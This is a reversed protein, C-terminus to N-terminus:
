EALTVPNKETPTNQREVLKGDPARWYDRQKRFPMLLANQLKNDQPQSYGVIGITIEAQPINLGITRHV